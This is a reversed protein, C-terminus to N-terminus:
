NRQRRVEILKELNQDRGRTIMNKRSVIIFACNAFFEIL